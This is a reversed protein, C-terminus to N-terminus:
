DAPQQGTLVATVYERPIRWRTGAVKVGPIRGQRLKQRITRPDLRLLKALEDVELMPAPMVTQPAASKYCTPCVEWHVTTAMAPGAVNTPSEDTVLTMRHAHPVM